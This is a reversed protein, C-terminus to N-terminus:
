ALIEVRRRLSSSTMLRLGVLLRRRRGLAIALIMLILGSVDTCCVVRVVTLRVVTGILITLVIFLLKGSGLLSMLEINNM